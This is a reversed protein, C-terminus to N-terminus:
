KESVGAQSFTAMFTYCAMAQGIIQMGIVSGTGEGLRMDLNLLPAIKEARLFSSHFPEASAHAFFLYDRVAPTLRMAVLAAASSIFGDVVIAKHAAAGGLMAGAMAAIELGGVRSLADFASGDWESQHLAVAEMIVRRKHELLEGSAGTGPGVTETPDVALLMSYLASASATNGIGMEGIGIVDADSQRAISAGVEIAKMCEVPTMAPKASFNRTGHAVKHLLLGPMPEMDDKVGVDVVAYAVGANRCMVSVAAGGGAMNIVMQRTIEPSYPTIKEETVGHDGAFTYLQMKDVSACQDGRILCYRMALEELRGLSGPPKTLDNLRAVIAKELSENEISAISQTLDSLISM